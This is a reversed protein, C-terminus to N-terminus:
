EIPVTCATCTDSPADGFWAEDEYEAALWEADCPRHEAPTCPHAGPVDHYTINLDATDYSEGRCAELTAAKDQNSEEFVALLCKVKKGTLWDAIRAGESVALAAHQTTRATERQSRCTDQASCADKLEDTWECYALEFSVQKGDCKSDEDTVNDGAEDCAEYLAYLPNIWGHALTLCAEMESRMTKVDTKIYDYLLKTPMCDPPKAAENTKRYTNYLNCATNKARELSGQTSRCGGHENRAATVANEYNQVTGTLSSECATGCAIISDRISDVTSQDTAHQTTATSFLREIFARITALASNEDASLTVNHGVVKEALESIFRSASLLANASDADGSEVLNLSSAHGALSLKQM